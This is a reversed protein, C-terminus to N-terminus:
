PTGAAESELRLLDALGAGFLGLTGVQLLERRGIRPHDERQCGIRHM